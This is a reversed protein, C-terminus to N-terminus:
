KTGWVLLMAAAGIFLMLILFWGLGAAENPARNDNLALISRWFPTMAARKPGEQLKPDPREFGQCAAVSADACTKAARIAQLTPTEMFKYPRVSSHNLLWWVADCQDEVTVAHYKFGPVLPSRLAIPQVLSFCDLARITIASSAWLSVRNPRHKSWLGIAGIPGLKTAPSFYDFIETAVAIQKQTFTGM